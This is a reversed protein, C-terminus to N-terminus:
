SAALACPLSGACISFRDTESDVILHQQDHGAPDPSQVVPLDFINPAALTSHEISLLNEGDGAM